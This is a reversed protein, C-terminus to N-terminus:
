LGNLDMCYYNVPSHQIKLIGGPEENLESSNKRVQNKKKENAIEKMTGNLFDLQESEKQYNQEEKVEIKM